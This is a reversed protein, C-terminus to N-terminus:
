AQSFILFAPPLLLCTQFGRHLGETAFNVFASFSLIGHPHFGFVYVQAPDLNVKKHLTIPYDKCTVGAMLNDFREFLALINSKEDLSVQEILKCEEMTSWRKSTTGDKFSKDFSIYALYVLLPPWFLPIACLSFFLALPLAFSCTYLLIAATELRRHLPIILPAAHERKVM